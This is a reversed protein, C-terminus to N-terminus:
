EEARAPDDDLVRTIDDDIPRTEDVPPQQAAASDGSGKFDIAVSLRAVSLAVGLLMLVAAVLALWIGIMPDRGIAAPPHNLLSAVVIVLAAVGPVVLWSDPRPRVLRLRGGVGVLAVLALGALVLDWVEFVEWASYGPQYWNLFLSVLLLAAGAAIFVLGAENRTGVQTASRSAGSAM